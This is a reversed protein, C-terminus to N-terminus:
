IPLLYSNGPPFIFSFSVASSQTFRSIFSSSFTKTEIPPFILVIFCQIVYVLYSLMRFITNEGVSFITKQRFVLVKNLVEYKNIIFGPMSRFDRPYTTFVTVSHGDKVFQESLEKARRAVGAMEPYYHQQLLLIKLM